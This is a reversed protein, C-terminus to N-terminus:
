LPFGPRSASPTKESTDEPSEPSVGVNAEGAANAFFLSPGSESPHTAKLPSTEAKFNFGPRRKVTLAETVKHYNIYGTEKEALQAGETLLSHSSLAQAQRRKARATRYHIFADLSPMQHQVVHHFFAYVEGKERGIELLNNLWPVARFPGSPFLDLRLRLRRVITEFSLEGHRDLEMLLTDLFAVEYAYWGAQDAEELLLQAGYRLTLLYISEAQEVTVSYDQLWKEPFHHGMVTLTARDFCATAKQVAQLPM